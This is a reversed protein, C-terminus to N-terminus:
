LAFQRRRNQIYDLLARLKPALNRRSPYCIYFGPFKTCFDELLPVLEGREIHQRFTEEMGFTIGGGAVALRVMLGMDNTTIEARVDVTFERGAETFEWRFPAVRPSPRWNICRHAALDRPHNPTQRRKLYSPACVALQRQDGSVPLAIMNQEIVEELRVAADYGEKIIDIEDDTVLVDLEVDPFAEAFGALLPGSLFSEAISSVTLRLQGRPQRGLDRAAGVAAQITAIAPAIEALLQEGAETLSVSRTTRHVLGIGIRDELRRILQSVASRTVGLHDAAARFNRQEAVVAFVTLENLDPKM